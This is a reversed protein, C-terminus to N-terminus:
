VFDEALAARLWERAQQDDAQIQEAVFGLRSQEPSGQRGRLEQVAREGSPLIVLRGERSQAILGRAILRGLMPAVIQAGVSRKWRLLAEESSEVESAPPEAIPPLAGASRRAFSALLSPHQLLFDAALVDAGSPMRAQSLEAVILLLRSERKWSRLTRMM